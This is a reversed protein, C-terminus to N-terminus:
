NLGRVHKQFDEGRQKYSNYMDFSSCMPSLLVVDNEKANEFSKTVAEKMSFVQIVKITDFFANQIKQSAEGLCVILKVKEKIDDLLQRYDAGKDRGGAILIIPKDISEIARKASDINTAKSDDVFEVNNITTVKQIRHALPNFTNVAYIIDKIDCGCAIALFACALINELSHLGNYTIEELSFIEVAKAELSAYVKNDKLYIGDVEDKTSFFLKRGNGPISLNSLISDDHNILSIDETSQNKFINAKTKIYHNFDDYRELHDETGNLICGAFPKFDIIRELQFSSVEVIVFTDKDINEIESSLSNGINGCVLSKRQARKLIEGLLTVVTSKGNTGTVAIIKAKCFWYAFELESIVPISKLKAYELPLSSEDIGPSVIMLDVGELFEQTHGGTEIEIFKDELVKLDNNIKDRPSSDTAVVVAGNNHALLCADFGSRGLGIVAIKENRIDM